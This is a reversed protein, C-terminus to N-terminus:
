KVGQLYADVCSSQYRSDQASVAANNSRKAALYGGLVSEEHGPKCKLRLQKVGYIAVEHLTKSAHDFTGIHQSLRNALHDRQSIEKLLSKTRTSKLENVERQLSRLQSDMAGEKRGTKESKYMDEDKADGEEATKKSLEKREVKDAKPDVEGEEDETIDARDVFDERSNEDVVDNESMNIEESEMDDEFEDKSDSMRELHGAIKKLM